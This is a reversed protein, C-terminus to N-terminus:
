RGAMAADRCFSDEWGDPLVSCGAGVLRGFSNPDGRRQIYTFSPEGRDWLARIRPDPAKQIRHLKIKRETENAEKRFGADLNKLDEAEVKLLREFKM